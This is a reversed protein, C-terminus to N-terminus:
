HKSTRKDKTSTKSGQRKKTSAEKNPVNKKKWAKDRKRKLMLWLEGHVLKSLNVKM